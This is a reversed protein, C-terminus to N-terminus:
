NLQALEPLALMEAIMELLFENASLDMARATDAADQRLESPLVAILPLLDVRKCTKPDIGLRQAEAHLEQRLVEETM